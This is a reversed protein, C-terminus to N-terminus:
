REQYRRNQRQHERREHNEKYGAALRALPTPSDRQEREERERKIEDRIAKRASDSDATM